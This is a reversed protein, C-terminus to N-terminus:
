WAEDEGMSKMKVGTICVYVNPSFPCRELGSVPLRRKLHRTCVGKGLYPKLALRKGM